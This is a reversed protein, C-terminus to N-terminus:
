ERERINLGKVLGRWVGLRANSYSREKKLVRKEDGGRILL